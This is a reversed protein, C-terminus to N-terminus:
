ATVGTAHLLAAVLVLGLLPLALILLCSAGAAPAQDYSARDQLERMSRGTTPRTDRTWTGGFTSPRNSM